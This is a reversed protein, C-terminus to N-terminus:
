GANQRQFWLPPKGHFVDQAPEKPEQHFDNKNARAFRDNTHDREALPTALAHTAVLTPDVTCSAGQRELMFPLSDDGDVTQEEYSDNEIHDESNEQEPPCGLGLGNNWGVAKPRPQVGVDPMM